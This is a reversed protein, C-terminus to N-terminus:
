APLAGQVVAPRALRAGLPVDQVPHHPGLKEATTFILPLDPHEALSQPLRPVTEAVMHGFHNDYMSVFVAPADERLPPTSVPAPMRCDPRGWRWIRPEIQSSFEPWHVGPTDRDPAPGVLIDRFSRMPPLTAFPLPSPVSIPTAAPKTPPPTAPQAPIGHAPKPV